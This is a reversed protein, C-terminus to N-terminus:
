QALPAHVGRQAVQLVEVVGEADGVALHEQGDLLAHDDPLASAPPPAEGRRGCESLRLPLFPRFRVPNRGKEQGSTKNRDPPKEQGPAKERGPAKNRDPSNKGTRLGKEQGPAKGARPGKGQGPAKERGPPRKGARPGKGQGPRLGPTRVPFFPRFVAFFRRSFAFFAAAPRLKGRRGSSNPLSASFGQRRM